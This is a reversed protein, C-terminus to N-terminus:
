LTNKNNSGKKRAAKDILVKSFREREGSGPTPSLTRKALIYYRGFAWVMIETTDANIQFVIVNYQAWANFLAQKHINDAHCCNSEHPLVM